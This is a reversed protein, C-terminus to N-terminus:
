KDTDLAFGEHSFLEFKDSLWDSIDDEDTGVSDPIEVEEPLEMFEAAASQNHKFMDYAYDHIESTSMNVFTQYPIGLAKAADDATMDDLKELIQKMEINWIINCVKM